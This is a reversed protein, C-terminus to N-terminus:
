AFPAAARGGKDSRPWERLSARSIAEAEEDSITVTPPAGPLPPPSDAYRDVVNRVRAVTHEVAENGM